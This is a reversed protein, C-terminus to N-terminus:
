KRVSIDHGRNKATANCPKYNRTVAGSKSIIEVKENSMDIPSQMEGSKCAEWEKKLEGWRPPGKNSREDYDFEREDETEQAAISSAAHLFLLLFLVCGSIFIPNSQNNM